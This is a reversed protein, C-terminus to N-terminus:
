KFHGVVNLFLRRKVTPSTRVGCGVRAARTKAMSAWAENIILLIAYHTRYITSTCSHRKLIHLKDNSLIIYLINELGVVFRVGSM